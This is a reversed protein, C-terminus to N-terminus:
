KESISRVAQTTNKGLDPITQFTKEEKGIAKLFKATDKKFVSDDVEINFSGGKAM